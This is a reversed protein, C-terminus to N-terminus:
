SVPFLWTLAVSFSFYCQTPECRDREVLRRQPLQLRPGLAFPPVQGAPALQEMRPEMRWRM